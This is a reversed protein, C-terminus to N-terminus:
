LYFFVSMGINTQYCMYAVLNCRTENPSRLERNSRLVAINVIDDLSIANALPCFLKGEIPRM